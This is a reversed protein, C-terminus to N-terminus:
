LKKLEEIIPADGQFCKKDKYLIPVGPTDLGCEQVKELFLKQAEPNQFVEIKKINIKQSINNEEIFKEVNTCHPCGSGWFFVTDSDSIELSPNDTTKQSFNSSSTGSSPSVDKKNRYVVIVSAVLFVVLVAILM